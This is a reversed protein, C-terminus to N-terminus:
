ELLLIVAFLLVELKTTLADGAAIGEEWGGTNVNEWELVLDEMFQSKLHLWGLNFYLSLFFTSKETKKKIFIKSLISSCTSLAM